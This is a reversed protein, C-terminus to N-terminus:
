GRDTADIDSVAFLYHHFLVMSGYCRQYKESEM